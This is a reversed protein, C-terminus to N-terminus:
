NPPVYSKIRDLLDKYAAPYTWCMFPAVFDELVFGEYEKDSAGRYKLLEIDSAIMTIHPSTLSADEQRPQDFSDLQRIDIPEPMNDSSYYDKFPMLRKLKAIEDASLQNSAVTDQAKYGLGIFFSGTVGDATFPRETLYVNPVDVLVYLQSGGMNLGSKKYVKKVNTNTIRVLEAKVGGSSYLGEIYETNLINDKYKNFEEAM